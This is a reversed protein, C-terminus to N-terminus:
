RKRPLHFRRVIKEAAQAPTTRDTPILLTNPMQESKERTNMRHTRLLKQLVRRSKVKGFERRSANTVRHLLMRDPCTLEVFHVSGGGRQVMRRVQHLFTREPRSNFSWVYTVILGPLRARLAERVIRRRFARTTHAFSPTGFPFFPVVLDVLLHNHLLPFGTRKSLIKGITLKGSAPPGYLIILLM